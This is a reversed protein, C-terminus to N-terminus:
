FGLLGLIQEESWIDNPFITIDDKHKRIIRVPEVSNDYVHLIDCLEM